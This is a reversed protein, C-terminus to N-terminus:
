KGQKDDMGRLARTKLRRVEDELTKTLDKRNTERTVQRPTGYIVSVNIAAERLISWLHPALDMDGYFGTIPRENSNMPMGQLHTYAIAVPQVWMTEDNQVAKQAAGLLASRFGLVHVGSTSTGEAFLVMVDDDKLRQAIENAKEGTASRRDRNVFVTRQLKALVGFAPWRSVEQKAIFSVPGSSSLAVIDLWSIHNATLLLPRKPAIKGHVTIKLGILAAAGRHWLVPLSRKAPLNFANLVMQVPILPLTVLVLVLITFIARATEIM